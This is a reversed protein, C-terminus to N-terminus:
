TVLAVVNEEGSPEARRASFQKRSTVAAAM